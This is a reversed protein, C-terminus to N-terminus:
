DSISCQQALLLFRASKFSLLQVWMRVNADGGVCGFGVMWVTNGKEHMCVFTM